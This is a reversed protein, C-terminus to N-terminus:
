LAGLHGSGSNGCFIGFFYGGPRFKPVGLFYGWFVLFISFFIGLVTMKPTKPTNKRYKRPLNQSDLIEPRPTNKRYKEHFNRTPGDRPETARLRLPFLHGNELSRFCCMFFVWMLFKLPLRPTEPGSNKMSTDNKGAFYLAYLIKLPPTEWTWNQPYKQSGLSWKCSDWFIGFLRLFLRKPPRCSLGRFYGFFNLFVGIQPYKQSKKPYERPSKQLGGFLSKQSRKKIGSPGSVGTFPREPRLTIEKHKHAKEPSSKWQRVYRNGGVTAFAKAM